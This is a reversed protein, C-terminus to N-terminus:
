DFKLTTEVSQGSKIHIAKVDIFTGGFKMTTKIKRDEYNKFEKNIYLKCEGIKTIGEEFIFIPNKKKTKYFQFKIENTPAFCTNSFEEEYNVSQNIEIYKRFCDRCFYKQIEENLYKEGKKSHIKENWVENVMEGITYKAKRVNITSPEIGFLVAGDMIALSPNSPQLYITINKLGNKILKILIENSCYGGVFIITKIEEKTIINNIIKCINDVQIKMYNLIIEYPFEVIWKRRVNKVSLKLNDDYINNNYEDVLESIEIDDDFIDQFLSLNITYKEKNEIKENTAGEKFDKIKREFESWDDFLVGKDYEENFENIGNKRKYKLYYSNFDQVGFLKLIIEKFILKDIENSGYNGGCSPYIENLKNNSGVLHAVIDGTGGGLDCVIYYEGEKFCERDIEKNISCYLSAAEPELAFFLSKDTKDNILGAGICSEMMISKQHEDWIAPVTVVWKIKEQQNNLYPRNKSIEKIAIEKIKELVKQIVLKLPLEKGSNKAIITSKNEYLEMKIGKFYHGTNLGKEKLFKVCDAGFQITYNNDDLIIETQVKYDVSAGYIQGHIIKTKDFYSYAFGTGSSGFDIGVVVEYM